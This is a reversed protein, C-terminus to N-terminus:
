YLSIKEGLKEDQVNLKVINSILVNRAQEKHVLSNNELNEPDPRFENIQKSLEFFYQLAYNKDNELM